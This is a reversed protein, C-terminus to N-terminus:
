GVLVGKSSSKIPVVAEGPKEINRDHILLGGRGKSFVGRLGGGFCVAERGLTRDRAFSIAEEQFAFGAGVIVPQKNGELQYVDWVRRGGTFRGKVLFKKRLRAAQERKQDANYARGNVFIRRVHQAEPQLRERDSAKINTKIKIM